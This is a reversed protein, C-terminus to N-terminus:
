VPANTPKWYVTQKCRKSNFPSKCQTQDRSKNGVAKEVEPVASPQYLEFHILVFHLLPAGNITIRFVRIAASM